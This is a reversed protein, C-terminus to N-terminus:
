PTKGRELRATIEASLMGYQRQADFSVQGTTRSIVMRRYDALLGESTASVLAQAYRDWDFEGLRTM